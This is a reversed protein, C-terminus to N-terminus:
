TRDRLDVQAFREEGEALRVFLDPAPGGYLWAEKPQHPEGCGAHVAAAGAYPWAADLAARAVRREDPHRRLMPTPDVSIVVEPRHRRIERVLEARLEDPGPLELPEHGLLTLDSCGLRGVVPGGEGVVLVADVRVDRGTLLAVTRACHRALGEEDVAVVLLRALRADSPGQYLTEYGTWSV